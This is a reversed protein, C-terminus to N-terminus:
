IEPYAPAELLARIGDELREGTGVDGLDLLASPPHRCLWADLVLRGEDDLADKSSGPAELLVRVRAAIEAAADPQARDDRTTLCALPAGDALLWLKAPGRGPLRLLLDRRHHADGARAHHAAIRRVTRLADRLAQARRPEAEHPFRRLAVEIAQVLADAGEGRELFPEPQVPRQPPTGALDFALRLRRAAERGGAPDIFPGYTPQPGPPPPGSRSPARPDVSVIRPPAGGRRTVKLWFGRRRVGVQVNFRPRRARIEASELLLAELESAALVVELDYLAERLAAVRGRARGRFYSSVREHLDRAKGVYIVEGRADRMRYIGPSRPLHALFAPGFNYHSFDIAAGPRERSLEALGRLTTAGRNRALRVFEVLLHATAEADGIARHRALNRLGYAECLADLSRRRLDPRFRRALRRTCAVAGLWPHGALRLLARDLFAVDFVANHAVLVRGDLADYLPRLVADLPPATSLMEADIGTLRTIEEPLRRGPRVLSEFAHTVREGDVHVVGVEIIEDIQPFLGTTEFDLVAFRADTLPADCLDDPLYLAGRREPSTAPTPMRYRAERDDPADGSVRAREPTLPVSPQRARADTREGSPVANVEEALLPRPRAEAIALLRDALEKSPPSAFRLLQQARRASDAGDDEVPRDSTGGHDSGDREDKSQVGVGFHYEALHPALITTQPTVRGGRTSCLVRGAARM